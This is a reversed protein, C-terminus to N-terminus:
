TRVLKPGPGHADPCMQASDVKAARVNPALGAQALVRQAGTGNRGIDMQSLVNELRIQVWLGDGM